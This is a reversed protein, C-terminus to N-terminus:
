RQGVAEGGMVLYQKFESLSKQNAKAEILVTLDQIEYENLVLYALPIGIQFPNNVFAARCEEAVYRELELELVSLGRQPDRLLDSADNIQPWIRGVIMAVDGGAAIFRIDEDHVHHGFSLTYNILEEESLHHYTRYRAAWMLNNTDVLSGIIRVAQSKDGGTLRTTRAWLDRWYSLDLAVELPFLSQETSYRKMAFSLTEYYPTGRLLEVAAGVNGAEVMAQAPLVSNQMPFLVFRIRDWSAGATIGRLVAKLNDVEFHRYLQMLLARADAPASRSVSGYADALRSRLQFVARRPTLNKDKVKELYPGYETHKLAAILAELDATESLEAFTQPSLLTSYMVRVRANIAAYGSVGGAM